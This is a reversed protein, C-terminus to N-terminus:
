LGVVTPDPAHDAALGCVREVLVLVGFEDRVKTDIAIERLPRDVHFRGSCVREGKRIQALKPM